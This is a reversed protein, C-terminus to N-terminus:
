LRGQLAHLGAGLGLGTLDGLETGETSSEVGKL